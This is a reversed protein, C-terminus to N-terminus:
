TEWPKIGQPAHLETGTAALAMGLIKISAQKEDRLHQARRIAGNETIFPLRVVNGNPYTAILLFGTVAWEAVNGTTNCKPCTVIADRESM